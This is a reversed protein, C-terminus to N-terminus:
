FGGQCSVNYESKSAQNHTKMENTVAELQNITVKECVIDLREEQGQLRVAEDVTQDPM